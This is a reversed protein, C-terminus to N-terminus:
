HNLVDQILLTTEHPHISPHICHLEKKKLAEAGLFECFQILPMATLPCHRYVVHTKMLHQERHLIEAVAPCM